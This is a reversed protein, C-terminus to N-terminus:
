RVHTPEELPLGFMASLMRRDVSMAYYSARLHLRRAGELDGTVEPGRKRGLVEYLSIAATVSLNLSESMGVMPVHFTFDCAQRAAASLGRQENGLLMCLPEDVPLREVPISGDMAAGAVKLGRGRVHALFGELDDHHHTQVWRYSGTTTRPAHLARDVASIVHVGLAGLAECTRVIAAANHPDTPNEVAVEVSAFRRDLVAEIRARRAETLYSGLAGIVHEAGYEAVIAEVANLDM